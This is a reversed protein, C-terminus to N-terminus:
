ALYADRYELEVGNSGGTSASYSVVNTGKALYWEEPPVSLASLASMRDATGLLVTGANTDVVLTENVGLTINFALTKSTTQNTVAPKSCPGNIRVIPHTGTNGANAAATSSGNAVVVSTTTMGYKRADSCAILVGVSPMGVSYDADMPPQFDIVAGYAIRKPGYGRIVLPFESEDDPIATAAALEDLLDDVQTPDAGSLVQLHITVLRQQALKRGAWAGHRAPRLTNGNDISPTGWGEIEAVRFPTGEGWLNGDYEVQGPKTILDGPLIPVSIEPLRVQAVAAATVPSVTKDTALSPTPVSAAAAVHAAISIGVSLTAAPVASLAAVSTPAVTEVDGVTITPSPIGALASVTATDASQGAGLAPSLVAATAAVSTAAFSAGTGVTPAPVASVATVAAPSPLISLAPAPIASVAAVASPAATADVTAPGLFGTDSVGIDDYLFTLNSAYTYTIADPVLTGLNISSATTTETSTSSDASDYRRIECSGNSTTTGIGLKVEIRCWQNTPIGGTQKALDTTSGDKRVSLRRSTDIHVRAVTSFSADNTLIIFSDVATPSATIYIHARVYVDRGSVVLSEWSLAGSPVSAVLPSRAGTAQSTSFTPSGSVSTFADGSTGGSNATTITAGSTGGNFSNKKLM